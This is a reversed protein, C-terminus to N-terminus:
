AAKGQSKKIYETVADGRGLRVAAGIVRDVIRAPLEDPWQSVAQKSVGLVSALGSKTDKGVIHIAEDINM